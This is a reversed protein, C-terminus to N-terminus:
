DSMLLLIGGAHVAAWLEEQAFLGGERFLSISTLLRFQHFITQLSFIKKDYIDILPPMSAYSCTSHWVYWSLRNGNGGAALKWPCPVSEEEELLLRACITYWSSLWLSISRREPWLAAPAAVSASTAPNERCGVKAHHRSVDWTLYTPALHQPPCCTPGGCAFSYSPRRKAARFATM